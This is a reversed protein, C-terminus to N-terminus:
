AATVRRQIFRGISRASLNIILLIVILLAAAGAAVASEQSATLGSSGAGVGKLYYIHTTLTDSAISPNPTFVNAPNYLGMTFLLAAAEGIIKGATLILGTILGPLASPIVVTRIM